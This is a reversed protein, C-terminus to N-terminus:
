GPIIGQGQGQGQGRNVMCLAGARAARQLDDPSFIVCHLICDLASQLGVLPFFFCSIYVAGARLWTLGPVVRITGLHAVYNALYFLLIDMWSAPTCIEPPNQYVTTGSPVAITINRLSSSGAM